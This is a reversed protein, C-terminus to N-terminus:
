YGLRLCGVPGFLDKGKTREVFGDPLELSLTDYGKRFAWFFPLGSEELGLALEALEEQSLTAETGFAVYVVSGKEKKTLWDNIVLWSGDGEEGAVPDPPLLGVPLVPKQLLEQFLNVYDKEIEMCSRSVYVDCGEIISGLRYNDSVGSENVDMHQIIKKAEYLKYALKTPFPIWDPPSTFDEPKTRPNEEPKMLALTNKMIFCFTATCFISFQAKSIGLNSAIPPLWYPSFDYVIWDPKSSELFHALPQQLGDYALKLYPVKNRPLDSTAEAGQPLTELHPLPVEIFTLLPPLAPSLKSLRHINRPTSIFSIKHGKQAILKSLELYPIMHGFALWPFMAIHLHHHKNEEAM